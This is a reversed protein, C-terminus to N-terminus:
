ADFGRTTSSEAILAGAGASRMPNRPRRIMPERIAAVTARAPKGSLTQVCVGPLAALQAESCPASASGVGASTAAALSMTTLM